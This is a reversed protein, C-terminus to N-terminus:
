KQNDRADRVLDIIANMTKLQELTQGQVEADEHPSVLDALMDRTDFLLDLMAEYDQM